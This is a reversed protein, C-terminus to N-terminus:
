FPKDAKIVGTKTDFQQELMDKDTTYAVDDASIQKLKTKFGSTESLKKALKEPPQKVLLAVQERGANRKAIRHNLFKIALWRIFPILTFLTGYTVLLLLLPMLALLFPIRSAEALLWWSGLFNVAALFGVPMLDSAALNSFSWARELLYPPLRGAGGSTASVQLSPFLYVLNGTDTVEPRGDFRVLVPLVGDEDNPKADTYAALQEAVVVGGNERIVQAVLQWRREELSINPNGDGFLFSFCNYLFNGKNQKAAVVGDYGQQQPFSSYANWWLLDRLIMFDFYNFDFDFGRDDRSDGGRNVSFIIVVFLLVVVLLSLILMIGFSIRLLFFGIRLIAQAIQEVVRAIGQALYNNQFGFDFKYVIDGATSVQLHGNTEAAVENLESAVVLIPLGTKTAVDAVSVKRGLDNVAKIISRKQEEM